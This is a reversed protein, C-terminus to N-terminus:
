QEGDTFPGPDEFEGPEPFPGPDDFAEPEPFADPEPFAGPDEFPEPEPFEGPDEFPEPDSFEGPDEFPEPDAFAEPEAFPEPDSFPEPAAFPEPEPFEGPDAFVEPVPFPGPDQFPEPGAFEEPEPLPEHGHVMQPAPLAETGDPAGLPHDRLLPGSDAIAEITTVIDQPLTGPTIDWPNAMVGDARVAPRSASRRFYTGEDQYADPPGLYHILEHLWVGDDHRMDLHRQDPRYPVPGVPTDTVIIHEPHDPDHVLRVGVHLQDGSGPLAYGINLYSDLAEQLRRELRPLRAPDVNEATRVPLELTLDRIWTGNEAQIRRATYRILTRVGALEGPRGPVPAPNRAPDFRETSLRAAPAGSRRHMWEEPAAPRAVRAAAPRRPVGAPHDKVMWREPAASTRGDGDRDGPLGAADGGREDGEAVEPATGTPTTRGLLAAEVAAATASLPREPTRPPVVREARPADDLAPGRMTRATLSTSPLDAHGEGSTERATELDAVARGLDARAKSQIAAQRRQDRALETAQADLHRVEEAAETYERQKREAEERRTRMEGRAHLLRQAPGPVGESALRSLAHEDLGHATLVLRAKGVDAVTQALRHRAAMLEREAQDAEDAPAPGESAGEPLGAIRGRAQQLERQAATVESQAETKRAAADALAEETEYRVLTEAFRDRSAEALRLASLAEAARDHAAALRERLLQEQQRLRAQNEAAEAHREAAPAFDNWADLVRADDARLTGTEGFSWRRLGRETRLFLDVPRRSLRAAQAAAYVARGVPPPGDEDGTGPDSRSALWLQVTGDDRHLGAVLVHPLDAMPHRRWDRLSEDPQDRLLSRVDYVGPRVRAETVGYGLLDREAMRVSTTGYVYRPPGAPGVVSIVVDVATEHTRAAPLDDPGTTVGTKLRERRVDQSGPTQASRLPEPAIASTGVAMRQNERTKDMVPATSWGLSPAAAFTSSSSHGTTNQRGRGLAIDGASTIPRPNHLEVTVTTVDPAPEHGQLTGPLPHPQRRSVEMRRIQILESLRVAADERSDLADMLGQGATHPDVEALVDRLHRAGDFAQVLVPGTPMLAPMGTRYAVPPIEAPRHFPVPDPGHVPVSPAEGGAFRLTNRVLTVASQPTRGGFAALWTRLDPTDRWSILGGSLFGGFIDPPWDTALASRLVSTYRYVVEFDATNDTDTWFRDQWATTQAVARSHDIGGGVAPGTRDAVMHDGARPHRTVLGLSANHSTTRTVGRSGASPTLSSSNELGQGKGAQRGRLTRLTETDGRPRARLEVEVLRAGGMARYLFHFRQAGGPGRGPLARMATLSTAAVARARLGPVYSSNGPSMAGPAEREIQEMLKDRFPHGQAPVEAATASAAGDSRAPTNSGSPTDPRLETLPVSDLVGGLGLEGTRAFRDPLAPRSGSDAPDASEIVDRLQPVDTFWRADRRIQADTVLVSLAQPLDLAITVDNGAGQGLVSTVINRHGRRVTMLVTVTSSLRHQRSDAGPTRTVEASSGLARSEATRRQLAYSLVPTVMTNGSTVPKDKDPRDKVDPRGGFSAGLRPGTSRSTTYTSGDSSSIGSEQWQQATGVSLPPHAYAAVEVSFEGDTIAGPLALGEVVYGGGLIQHGRSILQEPSLAARLTEIMVSGQHDPAGRLFGSVQRGVKALPATVRASVTGGDAASEAEASQAGAPRPDPFAGTVVSEFADILDRSGAFVDIIADGPVRFVGERPLGDPGTLALRDWDEQTASRPRIPLPPPTSSEPEGRTWPRPVAVRLVGEARNAGGDGAGPDRAGDDAADPQGGTHEAPFTVIPTRADEGYLALRFRVPVDFVESPQGESMAVQDGSVSVSKTGSRGWRWDYGGDLGGTLWSGGRVSGGGSLGIGTQLGWEVSSEQTGPDALSSVNITHVDPLTRDHRPQRVPDREATLRLQVRTASVATPADLWLAFGGDVASDAAARLGVPSRALEFRRLNELRVAAAPGGRPPRAAANDGRDQGAPPLFGHQRLYTEASAFFAETGRVDLVTASLGIGRVRALEPPLYRREAVEGRADKARLLRLRLAREWTDSEHRVISGDAGVFEVTYTVDADSLVHAANSRLAHQLAASGGSGFAKTLQLSAGGRVTVTGAAASTGGIPVRGSGLAVSVTAEAAAGSTLRASGVVSRHHVVYSEMATKGPVSTRLAKGARVVATLKFMGVVAGDSDTLLPSYAGHRLAPMAGRLGPESFMAEAETRSEPALPTLVSAFRQRVEHLLREPDALSDVAWLPLEDLDAPVVDATALHEDSVLHQPFWVTLTGARESLQGDDGGTADEGNSGTEGAATGETERLVRWSVQYSHPEAPESSSLVSVTRVSDGVTTTGSMQHHTLSLQVSGMARLLPIRQPTPFIGSWGVPITRSTRYGGQDSTSRTSAAQREVRQEPLGAGSEGYWEPRGDYALDLRVRIARERGNVPVTIHHGDAGLLASLHEELQEQALRRDLVAHAPGDDRQIGLTTIIRARLAAITPSALPSVAVLGPTSVRDTGGFDRVPAAPQTDSVVIRPPASRPEDTPSAVASRPGKRAVGPPPAPTRGHAGTVASASTGAQAGDTHTDTNTDALPMAHLVTYPVAPQHRAATGSLSTTQPRVSVEPVPDAARAAGTMFESFADYRANDAATTRVPNSPEPHLAAPDSGYLRELLPTLDREHARVWDPGNNRPRGTLGDIGHNAGLYANSAQAFYEYPDSSSYNEAPGGDLRRRPGDPWLVDHGGARKDRWARDVTERDEASLGAIHLLHAIEHTSSSYGETEHRVPGITTQEGLLNEEPVVATLGTTGARLEAVPRGGHQDHRGHFAAFSSVETLPVDKPLVVVEAGSLLVREATAPDGMMRAVQRCAERRASVPRSTGAPVVVLLHATNRAFQAASRSTRLRYVFPAHAALRRVDEQSMVAFADDLEAPPLALLRDM